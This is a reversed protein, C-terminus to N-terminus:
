SIKNFNVNNLRNLLFILRTTKLLTLTMLHMYILFYAIPACFTILIKTTIRSSEAQLTILLLWLGVGLWGLTLLLTSQHTAAALMSYTQLLAGLVIIMFIFMDNIAGRRKDFYGLYMNRIASNDALVSKDIITLEGDYLGRVNSLKLASKFIDRRYINGSAKVSLNYKSAISMYKDALSKSLQLFRDYILTISSMTENQTNFHLAGLKKDLFKTVSHRLLAVPIVSTSDVVLVYDGKQSRKYSQSLADIRSCNNKTLCIRVPMLPYKQKYAKLLRKMKVSSASVVVVDLRSYRNKRIGDLCDIVSNDSEKAYVLVTITPLRRGRFSPHLKKMKIGRIKQRIDYINAIMMVMFAAVFFSLLAGESLYVILQQNM